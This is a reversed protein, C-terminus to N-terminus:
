GQQVPMDERETRVQLKQADKIRRIMENTYERDIPVNVLKATDGRLHIGALSEIRTGYSQEYARAYLNLQLGLYDKDLKATTKIDAIGAKGGRDIVLDLRGAAIPEQDFLIVPVENQKVILGYCTTVTRFGRVEDYYDQSFSKTKCYREVAEHIATGRDAAKRLTEKPVNPYRNGLVQKCLSTISPVIVGDVLYQHSEDLYELTHGAIEISFDNPM